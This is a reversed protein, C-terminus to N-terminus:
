SRTLDALAQRPMQELVEAVIKEPVDRVLAVGAPGDLAFAMGGIAKKDQRM